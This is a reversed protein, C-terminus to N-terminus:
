GIIEHSIQNMIM